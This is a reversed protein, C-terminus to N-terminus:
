MDLCLGISLPHVEPGAGDEFLPTIGYRAYVGVGHYTLAAAAGFRCANVGPLSQKVKPRKYISNAGMTFDVYGSVSIGLDGVIRCSLCLPIGLSTIRLKSKDAREDLMRPVILGDERVLTLSPDALRYNDITYRLGTSIGFGHRRGLSLRVGALTSSLHFSKNNRLDFFPETGVPYAGYGVHPVLNFGWETCSLVSVALRSTRPQATRDRLTTESSLGSLTIGFGAVELVVEDGGATRHLSVLDTDVGDLRELSDAPLPEESLRLMATTDSKEPEPLATRAGAPLVHLLVAAAALLYLCPKNMTDHKKTKEENM